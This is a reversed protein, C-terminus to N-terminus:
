QLTINSFTHGGEVKGLMVLTLYDDDLLQGAIEMISDTTVLDFGAIIADLPQYQGFYIENKALKSMRNDSSELSLIMNGKLQERAADLEVQPVPERKLRKLEGLSLEMVERYHGPGSGAYIVLSGTDAHSAMYSYISYALGRKERVEQFLRSSMSGGLITNMVFADFRRPHNQPLGRIGLCMHVQELDREVTEIRKKHVPETSTERGNGTAIRPLNKELLALLEQHDVNGAAAIIIDEARYMRDKFGIIKERTLGSVSQQDGLISMGLPHHKWFKQHFLDHVLDEPNDEVMNIEQLIVKREKEIEEPDFISNTFIDALIDVAKPLFRDLVKAYYCVYERSTFANLIGGVSDIERAIDLATRNTTGKFLLHEIFHAVGNSERREHRSGNAVWIGISVSSLNPLAESIVRVGNKLTTKKIM